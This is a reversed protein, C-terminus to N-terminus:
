SKKKENKKLWWPTFIFREMFFVTLSIVIGAIIIYFIGITHEFSLITQKRNMQVDCKRKPMWKMLIRNMIGSEVIWHCADNILPKYASNHPLGIAYPASFLHESLEELNCDKAM